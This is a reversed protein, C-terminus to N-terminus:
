LIEENNQLNQILQELQAHSVLTRRGLKMVKLKKHKILSYFFSHSVGGIIQRADKISYALHKVNNM